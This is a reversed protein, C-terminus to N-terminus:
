SAGCPRPSTGAAQHASLMQCVKKSGPIGSLSTLYHGDASNKVRFLTEDVPLCLLVTVDERETHPRHKVVNQYRVGHEITETVKAKETFFRPVNM